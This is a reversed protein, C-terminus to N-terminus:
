MVLASQIFLFGTSRSKKRSIFFPIYFSDIVSHLAVYMIHSVEAVNSSVMGTTLCYGATMQEQLVGLWIKFLM